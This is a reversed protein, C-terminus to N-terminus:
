HSKRFDAHCAECSHALRRLATQTADIDVAHIARNVAGAADRMEASEAQWKPRQAPEKVATDDAMIAQAMVALTAAAGASQKAQSKFREGQISRKLNAQVIPVEKMLLGLPVIPKWGTPAAAPKATADVSPKGTAAEQLGDLAKRAAAYDGGAGALTQAASLMRPASDHLAHQGDHLALGLALVAVTDAEKTVRSQRAEDFDDRSALSENLRQVFYNVQGILDDAPAFESVKVAPSKDAAGEAAIALTPPTGSFLVGSLALLIGVKAAFLWPIQCFKQRM